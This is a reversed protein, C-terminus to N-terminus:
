GTFHKYWVPTNAGAGNAELHRAFGTRTLNVGRLEFLGKWGNAISQGIIAIANNEGNNSIKQLNHLATQETKASRYQFRHEARRYEKWESWAAAFEESDFPLIIDVAKQKM